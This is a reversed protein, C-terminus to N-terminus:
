KRQGIDGALPPSGPNKKDDRQCRDVRVHPCGAAGFVADNDSYKMDPQAVRDQGRKRIPPVHQNIASDGSVSLICPLSDYQRRESVQTDTTQVCYNRGMGVRIVDAPQHRHQLPDRYSMIQFGPLELARPRRALNLFQDSGSTNRPVRNRCPIRQGPKTFRTDNNQMWTTAEHIFCTLRRIPQVIPRNDEFDCVTTLGQQERAVYFM